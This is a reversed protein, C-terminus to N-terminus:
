QRLGNIEKEFLFERLTAESRLNWPKALLGECDMWTLDEILNKLEAESKPAVNKLPILVHEVEDEERAEPM